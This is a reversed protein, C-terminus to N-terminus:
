IAIVCPIPIESLIVLFIIESWSIWCDGMQKSFIGELRYAVRNQQVNFMNIAKRDIVDELIRVFRRFRMGCNVILESVM